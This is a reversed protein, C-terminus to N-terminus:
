SGIKSTRCPNRSAPSQYAALRQSTHKILCIRSFFCHPRLLAKEEIAAAQRFAWLRVTSPAVMFLNKPSISWSVSFSVIQRSSGTRTLLYRGSHYLARLCPIKDNIWSSRYLAKALGRRPQIHKTVDLLTVRAVLNRFFLNVIGALKKRYDQYFDVPMASLPTICLARHKWIKNKQQLSLVMSGNILRKLASRM